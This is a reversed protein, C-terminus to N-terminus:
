VIHIHYRQNIPIRCIPCNNIRDSCSLCCVVHRCPEFLQTRPKECCLFCEAHPTVQPQRQKLETLQNNLNQIQQTQEMVKNKYFQVYSFLRNLEQQWSLGAVYYPNYPLQQQFQQQQQQSQQFYVFRIRQTHNYAAMQQRLFVRVQPAPPLPALPIEVDMM